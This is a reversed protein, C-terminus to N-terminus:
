IGQVGDQYFYNVKTRSWIESAAKRVDASGHGCLSRLRLFQIISEITSLILENFVPDKCLDNFTRLSRILRILSASDNAESSALMLVKKALEAWLGHGNLMFFSPKLEISFTGVDRLGILDRLVFFSRVEHDTQRWRLASEPTQIAHQPRVLVHPARLGSCRALVKLLATAVGYISQRYDSYALTIAAKFFSTRVVCGSFWGFLNLFGVTNALAVCHDPSQPYLNEEQPSAPLSIFDITQQCSSVILSRLRFISYKDILEEDDGMFWVFDVDDDIIGLLHLGNDYGSERLCTLYDDGFDRAAYYKFNFNSHYDRLYQDTGDLSACSSVCITLQLDNPLVQAEVSRLLHRLQELRNFTPIAIAVRIM